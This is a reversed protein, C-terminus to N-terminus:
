ILFIYGLLFVKKLITDGLCSKCMFSFINQLFCYVFLDVLKRLRRSMNECIAAGEGVQGFIAKKLKRMFKEDSAARSFNVAFIEGYFRIKSFNRREHDVHVGVLSIRAHYAGRNRTEARIVAFIKAGVVLRILKVKFCVFICLSRLNRCVSLSFFGSTRIHVL